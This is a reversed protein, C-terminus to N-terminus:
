ARNGSYRPFAPLFYPVWRNELRAKDARIRATTMFTM